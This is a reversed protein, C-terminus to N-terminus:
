WETLTQQFLTSFSSAVSIFRLNLSLFVVNQMRNRTLLATLIVSWKLKEGKKECHIMLQMAWHIFMRNKGISFNSVILDQNIVVCITRDRFENDETKEKLHQELDFKSSFIWLFDLMMNFNQWCVFISPYILRYWLSNKKRFRIRSYWMTQNILSMWILEDITLSSITISITVDFFKNLFIEWSFLFLFDIWYIVSHFVNVVTLSIDTLEWQYKTLKKKQM